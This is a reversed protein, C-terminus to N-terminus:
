NDDVPQQAVCSVASGVPDPLASRILCISLLDVIASISFAACPALSTVFRTLLESASLL